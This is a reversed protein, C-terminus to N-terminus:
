SQVSRSCVSNRYYNSTEKPRKWDTIITRNKIKKKDLCKDVEHAKLNM